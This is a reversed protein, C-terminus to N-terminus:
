FESFLEEVFRLKSRSDVDEEYFICSHYECRPEFSTHNISAKKANKYAFQAM